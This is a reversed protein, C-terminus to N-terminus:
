KRKLGPISIGLADVHNVVAQRKIEPLRAFEAAMIGRIRAGQESYIKAAEHAPLSQVLRALDAGFEPVLSSDGKEIRSAVLRFRPLMIWRESPALWYSYKLATNQQELPAEVESLVQGRLLWANGDTPACKLRLDAFKGVAEIRQRILAPEVIDELPQLDQLQPRKPANLSTILGSSSLTNSRLANAKRQLEIKEAESLEKPLSAYLHALVITLGARSATDSCSSAILYLDHSQSLKDFFERSPAGTKEIVRSLSALSSAQTFDQINLASIIILFVSFVFCLLISFVRFM